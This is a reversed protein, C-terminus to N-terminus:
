RNNILSQIIIMKVGCTKNVTNESLMCEMNDGDKCELNKKKRICNIKKGLLM